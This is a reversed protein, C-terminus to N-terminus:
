EYHQRFVNKKDPKLFELAAADCGPEPKRISPFGVAEAPFAAFVEITLTKRKKSIL